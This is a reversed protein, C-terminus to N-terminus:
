TGARLPSRRATWSRRTASTCTVSRTRVAPPRGRVGGGPTGARAGGPSGPRGPAIAVRTARAPDRGGAPHAALCEAAPHRGRELWTAEGSPSAAVVLRARIDWDVDLEVWSRRLAAVFVPPLLFRARRAEVCRVGCGSNAYFGGPVPTLEPQHTHGTILGALGDACLAAAAARPAGNLHIGRPGLRSAAVAAYVARALLVAVAALLVVEAVLGVGALVLWQPLDSFQGSRSLLRMTAPIRLLLAALIPLLLWWARRGLQRYVLRSALFQGVTNPDALATLDSLLPTRRVEPLVEQVVHQGLPSDLPDRPDRLANAPDFAHGHECRVVRRGAPTDLALDLSLACGAGLRRTLVSASTGDWAIQADHNGVVVIVHRGSEEGFARLAGTLGPHADLAAEVTGAPEGWLEFADGNLVVTGPGEWGALRAILDREMQASAATARPGLHLDGCVLVQSDAPLSLALRDPLDHASKRGEAFGEDGVVPQWIARDDM